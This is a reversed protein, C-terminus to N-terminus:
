YLANVRLWPFIRGECACWRVSVCVCV